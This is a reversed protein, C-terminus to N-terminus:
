TRLQVRKGRPRRTVPYGVVVRCTWIGGDHDRCSGDPLGRDHPTSFQRRNVQHGDASNADAFMTNAIAFLDHRLRTVRCLGVSTPFDPMPWIEHRADSLRLRQVRKGGIDVWLLAGHDHDWVISERIKGGFM